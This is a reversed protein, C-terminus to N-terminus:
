YEVVMQALMWGGLCAGLVAVLSMYVFFLTRIPM